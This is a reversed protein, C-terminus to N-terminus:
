GRLALGIIIAVFVLLTSAFLAAAVNGKQIEEELDIKRLLVGDFVRIAILGVFLAVVAYLLNLALMAGSARVFQWDM